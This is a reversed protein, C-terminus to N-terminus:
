VTIEGGNLILRDGSAIYLKQVDVDSIKVNTVAGDAIKDTTVKKAGITPNPYNGALDGGAAGSPPLTTPYAPLAHKHDERAMKDSTGVAGAGGSTLAAPAATALPRQYEIAQATKLPTMMKSDNTGIQAESTTAIDPSSSIEVYTTGSWRFAQNLFVGSTLIVYIKGQEPTFADGSSTLSLWGASLAAAGSVIYSDIVDDVYSPLQESPVLGDAGLTAVGNAAGKQSTPIKTTDYITINETGDDTVGNITRTTKLKLACDAEEAADVKGDGDSDYDAIKMVSASLDSLESPLVNVYALQTWTKIDDGVKIKGTDTEVCPQGKLLVPDSAAIAAATGYKIVIEAMLQKDSM